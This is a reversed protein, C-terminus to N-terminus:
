CAIVSGDDSVANASSTAWGAPAGLAEPLGNRWIVASQGNGVAISGNFNVGLAITSGMYGPPSPLPQMGTASTWLFAEEIGSGLDQGGGVITGGDRSVAKAESYSQGPRAFGLGLLGTAQTWRFAQGVVFSTGTQSRGVIVSGDGSVGEAFS